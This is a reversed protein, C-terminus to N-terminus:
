EIVELRCRIGAKAAGANLIVRLADVTRGNKGIIKGFDGPAVHLEITSGDEAVAAHVADPDDVLGKAMCLVCEVLAKM